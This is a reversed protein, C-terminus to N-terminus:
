DGWIEDQSFFGGEPKPPNIEESPNGNFMMAFPTFEVEGDPRRNAACLVAVPEGTAALQCEMLAVDGNNFAKQLTEFNAKHGTALM